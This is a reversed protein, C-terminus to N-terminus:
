TRGRGRLLPRITRVLEDPHDFQPTHSGPTRVVEFGARGSLWAAVEHFVGPSNESVLVHTPTTIGAFASDGPRYAEFTGLEMGLLTEGNSTIRNRLDTPVRDWTADGAVPRFFRDVAGPPGGQAVGEQIAAAVSAQAAAPDAM